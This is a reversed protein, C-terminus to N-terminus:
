VRNIAGVSQLNLPGPQPKESQLNDILTWDEPYYDNISFQAALTSEPRVVFKPAVILEGPIESLYASWWGFSSSGIIIADCSAIVLMDVIDNIDVFSVEADLHANTFNRVREKDRERGEDDFAGGVSVFFHPNKGQFVDKAVSEIHSIASLYYSWSNPAYLQRNIEGHEKDGLRIQIGVRYVNGDSKNVSELFDQKLAHHEKQLSLSRRVTSKASESSFYKYSQFYGNLDLVIANCSTLSGIDNLANLFLERHFTNAGPDEVKVICQEAADIRAEVRAFRRLQFSEVFHEVPCEDSSSLSAIQLVSNKYRMSIATKLSLTFAWEFMLNGLRGTLRPQVAVVKGVHLHSLSGEGFEAQNQYFMGVHGNNQPSILNPYAVYSNLLGQQSLKEYASDITCADTQMVMSSLKQAVVHSLM